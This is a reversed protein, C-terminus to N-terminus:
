LPKVPICIDVIHKNEPHESPDNWYIEFSPRDDSQYGSKPLWDGYILNWAEEYEDPDLEFRGVAYMGGPVTMKGIDGEVEIGEPVTICASTRFKEEETTKPDDHYVSLVMTESSSLLGRPGAWGMLKGFLGAFLKTDGKYPGIHQVYAVNLEPMEKVEIKVDKEM